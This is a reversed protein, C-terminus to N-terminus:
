MMPTSRPPVLILTPAIGSSPLRSSPTRDRGVRASCPACATISRMTSIISATIV